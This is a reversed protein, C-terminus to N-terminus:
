NGVIAVVINSLEDIQRHFNGSVERAPAVRRGATPWMREARV